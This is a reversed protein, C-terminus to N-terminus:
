LTIFRKRRQLGRPPQHSGDKFNNQVSAPSLQRIFTQIQTFHDVFSHLYSIGKSLYKIHKQKTLVSRKAYRACIESWIQSKWVCTTTTTPDFISM